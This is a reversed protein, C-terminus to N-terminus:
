GYPFQYETIYMARSGQQSESSVTEGFRGLSRCRARLYTFVLRPLQFVSLTVTTTLQLGGKTNTNMGRIRRTGFQTVDPLNQGLGAGFPRSSVEGHYKLAANQYASRATKSFRGLNSTLYDM